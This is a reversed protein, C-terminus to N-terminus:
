AKGNTKYCKNTKSNHKKHNKHKEMPKQLTIIPKHQKDKQKMVKRVWWQLSVLVVNKLPFVPLKAGAADGERKKTHIQIYNM